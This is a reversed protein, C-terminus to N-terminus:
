DLDLAKKKKKKKKVAPLLQFMACIKDGEVCHCILIVVFETLELGM